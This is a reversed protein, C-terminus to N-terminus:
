ICILNGATRTWTTMAGAYGVWATGATLTTSSKNALLPTNDVAVPNVAVFTRKYKLRGSDDMLTFNAVLTATVNVNGEQVALMVSDEGSQDISQSNTNVAVALPSLPQDAANESSMLVIVHPQGSTEVGTSSTITATITIMTSDTEAVTGSIMPVAFVSGVWLLSLALAVALLPMGRIRFPNKM